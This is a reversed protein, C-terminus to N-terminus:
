YCRKNLFHFWLIRDGKVFFLFVREYWCAQACMSICLCFFCVGINNKKNQILKHTHKCIYTFIYTSVRVSLSLCSPSWSVSKYMSLPVRTCLCINVYMSGYTFFSMCMCICSCLRVNADVCVSYLYECAYAYVCTWMVCAYFCVNVNM